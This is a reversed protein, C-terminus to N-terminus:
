REIKQVDIAAKAKRRARRQWANRRARYDPDIKLRHQQIRSREHARERIQPESAYRQRARANRKKQDAYPM